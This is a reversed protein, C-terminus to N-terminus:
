FLRAADTTENSQKQRPRGPPRLTSELGLWAATRKVWDDAGFPAGRTVSHRLRALEAETQPTNVWALWDSPRPLPGVDLWPLREQRDGHGLSSWRWAEARSVLNARLPIREVYRLVMLLHEDEQIAFAKFRGQWV